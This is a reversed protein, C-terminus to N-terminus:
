VLLQEFINEVTRDVPWTPFLVKQWGRFYMQQLQKRVAVPMFPRGLYYINRIVGNTGLTKRRSTAHSAYREFRLNDIVQVPDFPLEVMSETIRVHGCASQLTEERVSGSIGSSCKGYCIIESGLRFYGSDSSLCPTVKFNPLDEPCRFHSRLLQNANSQQM